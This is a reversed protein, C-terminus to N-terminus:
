RTLLQYRFTGCLNVQSELNPESDGSFFAVNWIDMNEDDSLYVVWRASDTGCITNGNLLIDDAPINTRYLARLAGSDAEPTSISFM